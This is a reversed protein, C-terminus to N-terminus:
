DYVYLTDEKENLIEMEKLCADRQEANDCSDCLDAAIDYFYLKENTDLLDIREDDLYKIALDCRNKLMLLESRGAVLDAILYGDKEKAAQDIREDFMKMATREKGEDYIIGICNVVDSSSTLKSIDSCDTPDMGYGFTELNKNKTANLVIILVVLIVAIVCFGVLAWKLYNTSKDPNIVPQETDEM